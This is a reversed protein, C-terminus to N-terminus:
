VLEFPDTKKEIHEPWTAVLTDWSLFGDAALGVGTESDYGEHWTGDRNLDRALVEVVRTAITSANKYYGYQNLGFSLVANANM